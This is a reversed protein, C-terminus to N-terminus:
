RREQLSRLYDEWEKDSGNDTDDTVFERYTMRARADIYETDSNVGNWTVGELYEEPVHIPGIGNLHKNQSTNWIYNHTAITSVSGYISVDRGDSYDWDVGEEGFRAILSAEMTLMTELLKGARELQNSRANIIAGIQPRGDAKLVTRLKGKLPAVHMYRAMIEPNGQYIVDSISDTAFVGVMNAPSNVLERVETLSYAFSDEDIVGKEKLKDIYEPREGANKFFFVPSFSDAELAGIIPIEDEIGNGNPDETKFLYLVEAFEEATEPVSLGLAELWESNIWVIQGVGSLARTGYNGYYYTDGNPAILGRDSFEKLEEESINFEGGFMVVDIDVNSSFLADLYETSRTQRITVIDLKIGTEKELWNIYYNSKPDQIYDSYPIAVRLVAPEAKACGTMFLLILFPVLLFIKKM